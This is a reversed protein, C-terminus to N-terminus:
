RAPVSHAAPPKGSSKSFGVQVGSVSAVATTACASLAAPSVAAARLASSQSSSSCFGSPENPPPVLVSPAFAFLVPSAACASLAAPCAAAAPRATAYRFVSCDPQAAGAARRPAIWYWAPAKSPVVAGRAVACATGPRAPTPSASRSPVSAAAAAGTSAQAGAGAGVVVAGGVVAGGVVAGVRLGVAAGGAVAGPPYPPSSGAVPASGTGTAQSPEM